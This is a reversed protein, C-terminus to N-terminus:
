RVRAPSCRKPIGAAKVPPKPPLAPKETPSSLTASVPEPKLQFPKGSKDVALLYSVLKRAVMITAENAKKGKAIEREYLAKLQPNHRPALHACEILVHQLHANRKKSIPGRYSKDASSQEASCLGCYSVANAASSFRTADGIEVIWTLATIPGVGKITRVLLMREEILKHVSLQEVLKKENTMLFDIVTRSQMLLEVAEDSVEFEPGLKTLLQKYYKKQHLKEKNYEVGCEMLIGSARNKAKTAMGLMLSRYRMQRRLDRIEPPAVYCAPAWNVRMLDALTAADLDDNQNKGASIAKALLPNIVKLQQAFPNLLDYMWGTFMTSEIAGKWPRTRQRAWSLLDERRSPLKRQELIKGEADKVVVTTSKKHVDFGIYDISNM